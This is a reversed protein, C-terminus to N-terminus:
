LEMDDHLYPRILTLPPPHTALMQIDSLTVLPEPVPKRLSPPPAPGPPPVPHLLTGDRNVEIVSDATDQSNFLAQDEVEQLQQDYKHYNGRCYESYVKRVEFRHQKAEDVVCPWVDRPRFLALFDKLEQGYSHRAFTFCLDRKPEERVLDTPNEDLPFLCSEDLASEDLEMADRVRRGGAGPELFYFKQKLGSGSLSIEKMQHAPIIRVFMKGRLAECQNEIDCSHIRVDLDMASQTLCGAVSRSFDRGTRYTYGSLFPGHEYTERIAKMMEFRYPDVHIKCRLHTALRM